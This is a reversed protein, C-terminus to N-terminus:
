VSAKSERKSKRAYLNKLSNKYVINYMFYLLLLAVVVDIFSHQKLFMTSLSILIAMAMFFAKVAFNNKFHKSKSVVIYAAFSNYVHISPCVNTPTDTKYLGACLRGFVNDPLENIDPRLNQGNPFITYIFLAVLMGGIILKCVYDFDKESTLLFYAFVFGMLPFWFYYPILFYECFPIYDDVFSHIVIYQGNGPICQELLVFWIIYILAPFLKRSRIIVRRLNEKTFYKKLFAM